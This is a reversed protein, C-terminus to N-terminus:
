SEPLIRRGTVLALEALGAALRDDLDEARFRWAWNAQAEGPSNM